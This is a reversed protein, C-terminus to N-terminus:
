TKTRLHFHAKGVETKVEIHEIDNDLSENTQEIKITQTETTEEPQEPWSRGQIDILLLFCRLALACPTEFEASSVNERSLFSKMDAPKLVVGFLNFVTVDMTNNAILTGKGLNPVSFNLEQFITKQMTICLFSCILSESILSSTKLVSASRNVSLTYFYRVQQGAQKYDYNDETIIMKETKKNCKIKVCAWKLENLLNM